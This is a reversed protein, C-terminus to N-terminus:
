LLSRCSLGVFLSQCFSNVFSVIMSDACTYGCTYGSECMCVHVSTHVCVCRSVQGRRNDTQGKACPRARASTKLFEDRERKRAGEREREREKERQGKRKRERAKEGGKGGRQRKGEIEKARDRESARESKTERM